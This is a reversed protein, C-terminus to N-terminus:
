LDKYITYALSKPELVVVSSGFQKVWEKFSDMGLVNDEYYYIDPADQTPEKLDGFPRSHTDAKIKDIIHPHDAFIKLKIHTPTTEKEIQELADPEFSWMCDVRLATEPTPYTHKEPIIKQIFVDKLPIADVYNSDEYTELVYLLGTLIDRKIFHPSIVSAGLNISYGSRIARDLAVLHKNFDTSKKDSLVYVSISQCYDDITIYSKGSAFSDSFARMYMAREMVTMPFLTKNSHEGIFFKSNMHYCPEGNLTTVKIYPNFLLNGKPAEYNQLYDIDQQIQQEYVGMTKALNSVTAPFKEDCMYSILDNLRRYVEM